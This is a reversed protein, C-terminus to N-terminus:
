RQLVIRTGDDMAGSLRTRDGTLRVITAGGSARVVAADDELTWSAAGALPGSCGRTKVARGKSAPARLLRVTCVQGSDREVSRWDGSADGLDLHPAGGIFSGLVGGAGSLDLGGGGSQGAKDCKTKTDTSLVVDGQRVVVTTTTCIPAPEATPPADAAWVPAAPLALALTVALFMRM